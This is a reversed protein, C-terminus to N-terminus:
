SQLGAAKFKPQFPSRQPGFGAARGAVRGKPAGAGVWGVGGRGLPSLRFSVAPWRRGRGLHASVGAPREPDIGAGDFEVTGPIQELAEFAPKSQASEGLDPVGPTRYPAAASRVRDSCCALKRCGTQSGEAPEVLVQQNSSYLNQVPYFSSSCSFSFSLYQHGEAIAHFNSRRWPGRGEASRCTMSYGKQGEPVQHERTRNRRIM